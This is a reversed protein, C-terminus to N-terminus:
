LLQMAAWDYTIRHPTNDVDGCMRHNFETDDTYRICAVDGFCVHCAHLYRPVVMPM